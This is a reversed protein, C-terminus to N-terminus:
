KKKTAIGVLVKESKKIPSVVIHTCNNWAESSSTSNDDLLVGGLKPIVSLSFFDFYLFIPLLFPHSGLGRLYMMVLLFHM